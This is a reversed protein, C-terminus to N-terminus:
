SSIAHRASLRVSPPSQLIGSAKKFFRPSLLMTISMMLMVCYTFLMTISMMLMVCYKFLMTISMMLNCLVYVVNNYVDNVNCLIYVMNTVCYTFLMTISIM